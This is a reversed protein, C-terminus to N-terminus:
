GPTRGCGQFGSPEWRRGSQAEWAAKCRTHEEFCAERLHLSRRCSERTEASAQRECEELQLLDDAVIAPDAVCRNLAQACAPPSNNWTISSFAAFVAVLSAVVIVLGGSGALASAVILYRSPSVRSMMATTPDGQGGTASAFTISTGDEDFATRAVRGGYTM